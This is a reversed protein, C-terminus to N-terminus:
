SPWTREIFTTDVRGEIFAAHGLIDKLRPVTTKIGEIRLESLARQMCAVSM